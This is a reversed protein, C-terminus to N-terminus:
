NKKEPSAMVTVWLRLGLEKAWKKLAEHLKDCNAGALAYLPDIIVVKPASESYVGGKLTKVSEAYKRKIYGLKTESHNFHCIWLTTVQNLSLHELRRTLSVQRMDGNFLVTSKGEDSASRVVKDLVVTTKGTGASGALFGVEGVDISDYRLDADDTNFVKSM